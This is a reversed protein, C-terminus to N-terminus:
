DPACSRLGEWLEYRKPILRSNGATFDARDAMANEKSNSRIFLAGDARNKLYVYAFHAENSALREEDRVFFGNESFATSPVYLKEKKLALCFGELSNRPAKALPAKLQWVRYGEGLYIGISFYRDKYCRHLYSGLSLIARGGAKRNDLKNSHDFHTYLMAHEAKQGYIEMIKKTNLWMTYDKGTYLSYHSDGGVERYRNLVYRLMKYECSDVMAVFAGDPKLLELVKDYEFHQVAAILQQAQRGNRGDYCTSYAYDFLTNATYSPSSIDGIGFINVKPSHNQNYARLWMLFDYMVTPSITATNLEDRFVNITSDPTRGTAFANWLLMRDIPQELLVLQLGKEEIAYKIIGFAEANLSRCGRMNEGLAVIKKAWLDDPLGQGAVTYSSIASKDIQPQANQNFIVSKPYDYISKGNVSLAVRNLWLRQDRQMAEGRGEIVLTLLRVGEVSASLCNDRWKPHNADVSDMRLLNEKGDLFITKLAVSEMNLSKCSLCVSISAASDMDPLAITQFLFVHLPTKEHPNRQICLPHKGNIMASTDDHRIEMYPRWSFELMDTLRFNLNYSDESSSSGCGGTLLLTLLSCSLAILMIKFYKSRM